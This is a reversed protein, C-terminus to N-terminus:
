AVEAPADTTAPPETTPELLWADHANRLISEEMNGFPFDALPTLDFLEEYATDRGFCRKFTPFVEGGNAGRVDYNDDVTPKKYITCFTCIRPADAYGTLKYTNRHFFVIKGHPDHQVMTHGCFLNYTHHKVGASGPPKQIMHFPTQSKMWAFRFLDKDGWAMDLTEILRPHHFAYFMLTRLADSKDVLVQGSEQEMMDVFSVGLMDWLVSTNHINFITKKMRWFDPWFMARVEALLTSIIPHSTNMEDRRYWLEVPLKCGTDRLGKMVKPYVAMVIGRTLDAGQEAKSIPPTRYGTQNCAFQSGGKMGICSSVFARVVTGTAKHRAECYGSNGATIVKDCGKDENPERPGDPDCEGTQRWGLCEFDDAPNTMSLNQRWPPLKVPLLQNNPQRMTPTLELPQRNLIGDLYKNASARLGGGTPTTSSTSTFSFVLAAWCCLSVVVALFFPIKLHRLKMHSSTTAATITALSSLDSHTVVVPPSSFTNDLATKNFTNLARKFM